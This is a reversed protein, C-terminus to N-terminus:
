GGIILSIRANLIMKEQILNQKNKNFGKVM